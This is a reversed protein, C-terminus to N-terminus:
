KDSLVNNLPIEDVLFGLHPEFSLEKYKGLFEKWKCDDSDLHDDFPPIIFCKGNTSTAAVELEWSCWFSEESNNTAIFVFSRCNKLIDKLLMAREVDIQSRDQLESEKWDVFPKYGKNEFLMSLRIADDKDDYSYSIFVDYKQNQLNKERSMEELYSCRDSISPYNSRLLSSTIRM